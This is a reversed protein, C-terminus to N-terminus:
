VRFRDVWDLNSLDVDDANLVFQLISKQQRVAANVAPTQACEDLAELAPGPGTAVVVGDSKM